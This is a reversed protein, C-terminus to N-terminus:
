RCAAGTTITGWAAGLRYGGGGGGCVGGDGGAGRYRGKLRAPLTEQAGMGNARGMAPLRQAQLTRAAVVVSAITKIAQRARKVPAAAKNEELSSFPGTLATLGPDLHGNSTRMLSREGLVQPAIATSPYVFCTAMGPPDINWPALM